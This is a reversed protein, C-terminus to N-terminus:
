PTRRSLPPGIVPKPSSERPTAAWLAPLMCEAVLLPAAARRFVSRRALLAQPLPGAVARRLQAFLPHRPTIVLSALGSRTVDPSAYLLEALPRNGLARMARWAGRSAAFPTVSRAYVCPTGNVTLIVERVWVLDTPGLRLPAQEDRWPRAACESAVLVAVEGLRRLRATLSAHDSLWDAQM